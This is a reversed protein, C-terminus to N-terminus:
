SRAAPAALRAARRGRLGADQLGRRLLAARQRQRVGLGGGRRRDGLRAPQRRRLQGERRGAHRRVGRHHHGQPARPRRPHLRRDEHRGPCRGRRGRQRPQRDLPVRLGQQRVRPRRLARDGRRPGQLLAHPQRLRGQGLPERMGLERALNNAKILRTYGPEMNPSGTIDAPVPLLPQYRWINKPGAEIQARTVQPSTTASRSRASASRAPTSRASRSPPAVSAASWTPRTASPATACARAPPRTGSLVSTSM